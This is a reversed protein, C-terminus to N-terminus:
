FRYLLSVKKEDRQKSVTVHIKSNIFNALVSGAFAGVVDAAMDLGSFKNNRQSSDHIEKILGPFSGILTGATIRTAPKWDTKYHFVSECVGGFAVSIGFHAAKDMNNQASSSAPVLLVIIAAITPLSIRKMTMRKGGAIV